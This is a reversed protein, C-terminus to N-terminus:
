AIRRVLVEVISEGSNLVINDQMEVTNYDEVVVTWSTNGEDMVVTTITGMLAQIAAIITERTQTKRAVGGAKGVPTAGAIIPIRIFDKVAPVYEYDIYLPFNLHANYDTTGTTAIGIRLQVARGLSASTSPFSLTFFGGSATNYSGINTWADENNVRFDFSLTAPTSAALVANSRIKSFRKTVCGANGDGVYFSTILYKVTATSQAGKTGHLNTIPLTYIYGTNDDFFPGIYYLNWNGGPTGTGSAFLAGIDNQAIAASKEAVFHWTVGNGNFIGHWITYGDSYWIHNRVTHCSPTYSANAVGQVASFGFGDKTPNSPFMGFPGIETYSSLDGTIYLLGGTHPALMGGLFDRSNRGFGANGVVFQDSVVPAFVGDTDIGHITGDICTYLMYAGIVKIWTIRTNISIPFSHLNGAALTASDNWYATPATGSAAQQLYWLKNGFSTVFTAVPGSYTTGTATDDWAATSITYRASAISVGTSTTFRGFYIFNGHKAWSGSFSGTSQPSRVRTGSINFIGGAFIFFMTGDHEAIGAGTGAVPSTGACATTGGGGTGMFLMGQYAPDLGDSSYYRNPDSMITQGFGKHLSEIIISDIQNRPGPENSIAGLKIAPTGNADRLAIYSDSGITVDFSNNRPM